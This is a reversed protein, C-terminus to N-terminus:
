SNRELHLARTMAGRGRGAARSEMGAAKGLGAALAAVARSQRSHECVRLREMRARRRYRSGM